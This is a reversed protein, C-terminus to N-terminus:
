GPRSRNGGTGAFDDIADCTVNEVVATLEGDSDTVVVCVGVFPGLQRESWVSQTTGEAACQDIVVLGVPIWARRDAEFPRLQGTWEGAFGDFSATVRTDDTTLRAPLAELGEPCVSTEPFGVWETQVQVTSGDAGLVPEGVELTAVRDDVVTSALIADDCPPTSDDSAVSRTEGDPGTVSWEVPAGAPVSSQFFAPSVRGPAFVVPVFEADVPDAGTVVSSSADLVVATDNENVYAFAVEGDNTFCLVEPIIAGTAAPPPPDTATPTTEPAASAVPAPDTATTTSGELIEEDSGCAAILALAAVAAAGVLRRGATRGM